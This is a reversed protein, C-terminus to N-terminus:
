IDVKEFRKVSLNYSLIGLLVYIVIGIILLGIHSIWGESGRLFESVMQNRLAIYEVMAGFITMATIAAVTAVGYTYGTKFYLPFLVVNFLAYMIFSLGFYAINPQIFIFWTPDYINHNIIAYIIAFGIHLLELLMISIIRSAVIDKRKVPMLASLMLDSNTKYNALLNPVTIFSFYMLVLLYLWGPILMLAGTLIPLLLFFPHIALKFDKYVLNFM